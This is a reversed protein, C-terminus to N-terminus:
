HKQIAAIPRPVTSGGILDLDGVGRRAPDGTTPAVRRPGGVSALGIREHVYRPANVILRGNFYKVSAGEVDTWLAPEVTDMVTDALSQGREEKSPGQVEETDLAFLGGGNNGGGGGRSNATSGGSSTNSLSQNLDFEPAAFNPIDMVLDEVIYVKLILNQNAQRKTMVQVYWPTVEYMLEMDPAAQRMLIGLLQGAPVDTLHLNLRRDPDVGEDSLANWDIVLPINTTTAWWDFASRASAEEIVVVDVIDRLRQAPTPPEYADAPTQRAAHDRRVQEMRQQLSQAESTVAFMPWALAGVLLCSWMRVDQMANM